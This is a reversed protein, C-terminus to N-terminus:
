ERPMVQRCGIILALFIGLLGAAVKAGIALNSLMITGGSLFDHVRGRPLFNAFFGGAGAWLGVFGLLAIVVFGLAGLGEVMHCVVETAAEKPKEGGFALIILVGGAMLMVGGAFGGGPTLHGTVVIYLGFLMVFGAILKTVNKVILTMGKM